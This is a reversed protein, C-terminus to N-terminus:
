DVEKQNIQKWWELEYSDLADLQEKFDDENHARISILAVFEKLPCDNAWTAKCEGSIHAHHPGTHGTVRTCLWGGHSKGCFRLNDNHATADADKPCKGLGPFTRYQSCGINHCDPDTYDLSPIKANCYPCTLISCKTM